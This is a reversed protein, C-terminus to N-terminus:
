QREYLIKRERYVNEKLRPYMEQRRNEDLSGVTLLDVKKGVSDCLDEYVGGIIWGRVSSGTKDILFDVDSDDTAENRAYSGYVWVSRLGYKEAVPVIREQLQEITYVM